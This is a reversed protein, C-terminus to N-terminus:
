KEQLSIKISVEVQNISSEILNGPSRVSLTKTLNTRIDRIDVPETEIRKVNKMSNEPGSVIITSPKVEIGILKVDEPLNGYRPVVVQVEREVKKDLAIELQSPEISVVEISPPLSLGEKNLEARFSNEVGTPLEIKYTFKSTAVQSVLYSPGKVTVQAKPGLPWVLMKNQPINKIEIPATFGIVSFNTDSNVYYCLAIAIILSFIKLSLNKM